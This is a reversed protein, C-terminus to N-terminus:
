ARFSNPTGSETVVATQPASLEQPNLESGNKSHPILFVAWVVVTVAVTVWRRAAFRQGFVEFGWAVMLALLMLLTKNDTLDTGMPFGTWYPGFAYHQVLPGFVFGGLLLSALGMYLYKKYTALRCLAFGGAVTIFLMSLFMFLIHPILCAAPVNGKFRLVVPEAPYVAGEAEVYYQWKGAAPLAPLWAEWEGAGTVRMERAMYAEGAVEPYHKYYLRAAETGAPAKSAGSYLTADRLPVTVRVAEPGGSRPLRFTNREGAATVVTQRLPHTPGTMRQYVSSGLTLLVAVIWILTRKM